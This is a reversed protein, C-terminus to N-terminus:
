SFILLHISFLKIPQLTSYLRMALVVSDTSLAETTYTHTSLSLLSVLTHLAGHM